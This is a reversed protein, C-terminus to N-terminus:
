PYEGGGDEQLNWGSFKYGYKCLNNYNELVNVLEGNDYSECDVPPLGSTSGNGHYIVSFTESDNLFFDCSLLSLGVIFICLLILIKKM